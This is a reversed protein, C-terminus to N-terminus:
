KKSQDQPPINIIIPAPQAQPPAAKAANEGAAQFTTVTMQQIGIGTAIAALVTAAASGIIWKVIDHKAEALDAKSALTPLVAEVHTLRKDIDVLSPNMPPGGSGSSTYGNSSKKFPLVNGTM